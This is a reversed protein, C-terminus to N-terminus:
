TLASSATLLNFLTTMTSFDALGDVRAPRFHRQFATVIEMTAKDYVNTTDAAYGFRALARQLEAVQPSRDGEKLASGDRIPAPEIWLGVGSAPFDSARIKRAPPRSM